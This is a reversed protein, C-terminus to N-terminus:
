PLESCSVPQSLRGNRTSWGPNDHSGLAAKWARASYPRALTASEYLLLRVVDIDALDDDTGGCLVSGGPVPSALVPIVLHARRSLWAATRHQGFRGSTVPSSFCRRCVSARRKTVGRPLVESM